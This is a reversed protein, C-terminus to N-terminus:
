RGGRVGVAAARCVRRVQAVRDALDIRCVRQLVPVVRVEVGGSGEVIGGRDGGDIGLNVVGADVHPQGLKPVQERTGARGLFRGEAGPGVAIRVVDGHLRGRAAAEGSGGQDHGVADRVRSVGGTKPVSAEPPGTTWRM